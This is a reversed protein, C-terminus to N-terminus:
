LSSYRCREAESARCWGRSFPLGASRAADLPPRNNLPLRFPQSPVLIMGDLRWEAMGASEVGRRWLSTFFGLRRVLSALRYRSTKYYEPAERGAPMCLALVRVSDGATSSWKVRLVNTGPSFYDPGQVQAVTDITWSRGKQRQLLAGRVHVYEKLENQVLFVGSFSSSGENTTCLFTIQLSRSRGGCLLVMVLLCIAVAGFSVLLIGQTTRAVPDSSLHAHAVPPLRWCRGFRYEAFRSGGTPEISRNATQGERRRMFESRCTTRMRTWHGFTRGSRMRSGFSGGLLDAKGLVLTSETRPFFSKIRVYHDYRSPCQLEMPWSTPGLFMIIHSCRQAEWLTSGCFRTAVVPLGPM